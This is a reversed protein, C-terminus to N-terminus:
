YSSHSLSFDQLLSGNAPLIPSRTLASDDGSGDNSSLFLINARHSPTEKKAEEWLRDIEKELKTVSRWDKWLAAAGLFSAFGLISFSILISGAGTFLLITGLMAIAASVIMLKHSDIKKSLREQLAIILAKNNRTSSVSKSSDYTGMIDIIRKSYKERNIIEFHRRLYFTGDGHGGEKRSKNGLEWRLWSLPTNDTEKSTEELLALDKALFGHIEKSRQIGRYNWWIIAPSLIAAAIATPPAWSAAVKAIAGAQVLALTFTAISDIFWAVAHTLYLYADTRERTRNSCKEPVLDPNNQFYEINITEDYINRINDVIHYTAVLTGFIGAARIGGIARQWVPQSLVSEGARQGIRFLTSFILSIADSQVIRGAFLFSAVLLPSQRVLRAFSRTNRMVEILIAGTAILDPISLLIGLGIIEVVGRAIHGAKNPTDLYIAAKIRCIGVYLGAIPLYGLVKYRNERKCTAIKEPAVDDIENEEAVTVVDKTVTGTKKSLYDYTDFQGINFGIVSESIIM